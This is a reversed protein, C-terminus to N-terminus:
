VSPPPQPSTSTPQTELLFCFRESQRLESLLSSQSIRLSALLGELSKLASGSYKQIDALVHEADELLEGLEDILEDLSPPDEEGDSITRADDSLEDTDEYEGDLKRRINAQM